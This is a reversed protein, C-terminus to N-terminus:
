SLLTICKWFWMGISIILWLIGMHIKNVFLMLLIIPVIFMVWQIKDGQIGFPGQREQTFYFFGVYFLNVIINFAALMSNFFVINRLLLAFVIAFSSTAEYGPYLVATRAQSFSMFFELPDSGFVLVFCFLAVLALVINALADSLYAILMKLIRWKGHFNHPNIPIYQGFGFPVFGLAMIALWFFSVHVMPNFTLFGLQEPTDDGMKEAVWARFCGILPIVTFYTLLVILTDIVLETAQVTMGM